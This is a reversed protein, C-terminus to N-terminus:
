GHFTSTFPRRPTSIALTHRIVDDTRTNSDCVAIIKGNRARGRVESGARKSIFLKRHAKTAAASTASPQEVSVELRATEGVRASALAAPDGGGEVRTAHSSRRQRSRSRPPRRVRAARAPGGAPPHRCCDQRRAPGRGNRAEAKGSPVARPGRCSPRWRYPGGPRRPMVSECQGSDRNTVPASPRRISSAVRSARVQIRKSDGPCTGQIIPSNSTSSVKGGTGSSAVM